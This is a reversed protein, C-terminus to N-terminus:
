SPLRRLQLEAGAALMRRLDEPELPAPRTASSAGDNSADPTPAPAPADLVEFENIVVAM